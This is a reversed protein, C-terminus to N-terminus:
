TSPRWCGGATAYFVQEEKDSKRKRKKKVQEQARRRRQWQLEFLHRRHSFCTFFGDFGIRTSLTAILACFGQLIEKTHIEGGGREDWRKSKKRTLTCKFSETWYLSATINTEWYFHSSNTWNNHYISAPHSFIPKCAGSPLVSFDKQSGLLEANVWRWIPYAIQRLNGKGRLSM